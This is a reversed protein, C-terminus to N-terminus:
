KYREGDWVCKDDHTLLSIQLAYCMAGNWQMEVEAERAM